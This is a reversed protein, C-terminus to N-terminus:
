DLGIVGDLKKELSACLQPPSPAVINMKQAECFHEWDIGKWDQSFM